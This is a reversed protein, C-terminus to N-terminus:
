AGLFSSYELYDLCIRSAQCAHAIRPTRRWADHVAFFEESLHESAVGVAQRESAYYSSMQTSNDFFLLDVLEVGHPELRGYCEGIVSELEAVATEPVSGFIRKLLRPM